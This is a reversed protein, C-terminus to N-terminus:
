SFVESSQDSTSHTMESSKKKTLVYTMFSFMVQYEIVAAFNMPPDIIDSAPDFGSSRDRVFSLLHPKAEKLVNLYYETYTTYIYKFSQVVINPSGVYKEQAVKSAGM